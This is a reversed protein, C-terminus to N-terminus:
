KIDAKLKVDIESNISQEDYNIDKLDKDSNTMIFISRHKRFVIFLLAAVAIILAIILAKNHEAQLIKIESEQYQNKAQWSDDRKYTKEKLGSPHATQLDYPIDESLDVTSEMNKIIQKFSEISINAYFSETQKEVDTSYSILKMNNIDAHCGYPLKIIEVGTLNRSQMNDGHCSTNITNSSESFIWFTGKDMKIVAFSELELLEMKNGCVEIDIINDRQATFLCDMKNANKIIDDAKCYMDDSDNSICSTMFNENTTLLEENKEDFLFYKHQPKLILVYNSYAAPISEVKYLKMTRTTAIPLELVIHFNENKFVIKAKANRICDLSNECTFQRDNRLSNRVSDLNNLLEEDILLGDINGNIYSSLVADAIVSIKTFQEKFNQIRMNEKLQRVDRKLKNVEENNVEAKLQAPQNTKSELKTVKQGLITINEYLNVLYRHLDSRDDSNMVGGSWKLFNGWPAWERKKRNLNKVQLKSINILTSNKQLIEDILFRKEAKCIDFECDFKTLDQMLEELENYVNRTISLEVSKYDIILKVDHIEHFELLPFNQNVKRGHTLAVLCFVLLLHQKYCM